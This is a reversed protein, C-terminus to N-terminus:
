RSKLNFNAETTGQPPVTYTLITERNYKAPVQEHPGEPGIPQERNRENVSIIVRHEGVVAGSVGGEDLKLTYNGQDDTEGISFPSADGALPYFRVEANALPRNDMLVRGSVPVARISKGCGGSLLFVSMLIVLLSHRQFRM